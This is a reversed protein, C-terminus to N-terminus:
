LAPKKYGFKFIGEEFKGPVESDKIGISDFFAKIAPFHNAEMGPVKGLNMSFWVEFKIKDESIAPKQEEAKESSRKDRTM